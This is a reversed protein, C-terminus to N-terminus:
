TITSPRVTILYRITFEKDGDSAVVTLTTTKAVGNFRINLDGSFTVTTVRQGVGTPVGPQIPNETDAGYDESEVEVTLDPGVETSSLGYRITVDGALVNGADDIIRGDDIFIVTLEFPATILDDAAAGTADAILGMSFTTGDEVGDVRPGNNADDNDCGVFVMLMIILLLYQVKM